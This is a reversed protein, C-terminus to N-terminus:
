RGYSSAARTSVGNLLAICLIFLTPLTNGEQEFVPHPHLLSNCSMQYSKVFVSNGQQQSKFLEYVCIECFLAVILCIAAFICECYM